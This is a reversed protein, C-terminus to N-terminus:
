TTRSFRKAAGADGHCTSMGAAAAALIPRFIAKWEPKTVGEWAQSEQGPRTAYRAALDPAKKYEVTMRGLSDANELM